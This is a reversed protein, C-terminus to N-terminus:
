NERPTESRMAEYRPQTPDSNEEPPLDSFIGEAPAQSPLGSRAGCGADPELTERQRTAESAVTPARRQTVTRPGGDQRRWPRRTDQPTRQKEPVRAAIQTGSGNSPHAVM